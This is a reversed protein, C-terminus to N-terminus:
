EIVEFGAALAREAAAGFASVIAAIGQTTLEEPSPDGPYFPFPSPALPQWGPGPPLVKGGNWPAATSAKRGAHALQMGAISGQAKIFSTIRKLMPIHEDKWIGLDEASIRGRPEVATAETFVLAAAGVARSGLHTLHWDTAFGDTASYQCMPSVVLRHRFTIDRIKLPQFLQSM